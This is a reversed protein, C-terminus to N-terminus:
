RVDGNRNLWQEKRYRDDDHAIRDSRGSEWNIAAQQADAEASHFASQAEGEDHTNNWAFGNGFEEFWYLTDNLEFRM